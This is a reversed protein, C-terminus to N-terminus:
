PEEGEFNLNKERGEFQSIGSSIYIVAGEFIMSHLTALGEWFHLSEEAVCFLPHHLKLHIKLSHKTGNLM